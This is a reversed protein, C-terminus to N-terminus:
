SGGLDARLVEHSDLTRRLAADLPWPFVLDSNLRSDVAAVSGQRPHSAGARDVIAEFLAAPTALYYLRSSGHASGRLGAAYLLGRPAIVWREATIEVHALMETGGWEVAALRAHVLRRRADDTLLKEVDTRRMRPLTGPEAGFYRWLVEDFFTRSRETM